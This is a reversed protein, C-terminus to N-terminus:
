IEALHIVYGNFLDKKIQSLNYIGANFLFVRIYKPVEFQEQEEPTFVEEVKQSSVELNQKKAM